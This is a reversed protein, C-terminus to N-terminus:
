SAAEAQHLYVDQQPFPISIGEEDFRLKVKETTDFLVSWYDEVKVFPRVAFNVSSDALALVAITPEPDALVREEESIIEELLRKAKLLDDDYGIGFVMDLRRTGKTTYNVINDGTALANPVIVTKLDPTALITNFIQIEEVTGATGSIEVYDGVRYPRFLLILVGAAFNALSGQLALGVALSAAGLVAILSTTEIGLRALAALLVVVLLLYYVLNGLFSILGADLEARQLGNKFLRTLLGTL